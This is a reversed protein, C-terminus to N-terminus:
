DQFPNEPQKLADKPIVKDRQAGKPLLLGAWCHCDQYQNRKLHGHHMCGECGKWFEMDTTLDCYPVAEFRFSKNLREVAPSLTLSMIAAHPWKRRSLRILREKIRRALGRGRFEPAVVMASHSVFRDDQWAHATAFGVLLQGRLCLVACRERIMEELYAESRVAIIAGADHADQLLQRMRPVHIRDTARSTRVEYPDTVRLRTPAPIGTSARGRGNKSEPKM